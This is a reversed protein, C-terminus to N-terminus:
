PPDALLGRQRAREIAEDRNGVGLKAYLRRLRTKVTNVSVGLDEAIDANKARTPLVTLLQLEGRSLALPPGPPVVGSTAATRRQVLWTLADDQNELATSRALELFDADCTVLLQGMDYSHAIHAAKALHGQAMSRSTRAHLRALLLHRQAEVRPMGERVQELTRQAMAPHRALGASAWLLSRVDSPPLDRIVREARLHDGTALHVAAQAMDVPVRMASEPTDRIAAARARAVERGAAAVDDTALHLRALVLRAIVAEALLGSADATAVAADAQSRAAQLDGTELAVWALATQVPGFLVVDPQMGTRAVWAAAADALVQARRVFGNSLNVLAKITTLHAERMMDNAMPRDGAERLARAAAEPQGSWLLGRALMIPALQATDSNVADAPELLVRRASKVVTAADAHFGALHGQLLAAEATWAREM